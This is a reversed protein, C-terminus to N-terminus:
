KLRRKGGPHNTARSGDDLMQTCVLPIGPLRGLLYHLLTVVNRMDALTALLGPRRLTTASM